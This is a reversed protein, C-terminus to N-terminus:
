SKRQPLPTPYAVGQLKHFVIAIGVLSVAGLLVPTLLFMFGPDTAFVILPDAGAPPHTVRLAVMLAIALGVALALAWWSEPLALRLCLGTLSAVLHGGIVNMPQSLPASPAAFLLVCSAGFPAMLLLLSTENSGLALAAIAAFGGLGSLAIAKFTPQPLYRHFVPM